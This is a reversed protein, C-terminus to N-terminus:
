GRARTAWDLLAIAAPANLGARGAQVGRSCGRAHLLSEARSSKPTGRIVLVHIHWTSYVKCSGEEMQCTPRPCGPDAAVM